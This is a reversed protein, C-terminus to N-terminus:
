RLDLDSKITSYPTAYSNSGFRDAAHIMGYVKVNSGITTLPAGSDGGKLKVDIVMGYKSSWKEYTGYKTGSSVGSVQLWTGESPLSTSFSSISDAVGSRKFIKKVTTQTAKVFACDCKGWAESTIKDVTGVDRTPYQDIIKGKANAGHATMVFGVDGDKQKAFFSLTSTEGGEDVALGGMLYRCDTTRDSCKIFHSNKQITGVTFPMGDIVGGNVSLDQSPIDAKQPSASFTEERILSNEFIIHVSKKIPSVFFGDPVEGLFHESNPDSLKNFVSLGQAELKEMEKKTPIVDDIYKQQLRDMKQQIKNIREELKEIKNAKSEKHELNDIKAQLATQKEALKLFKLFKRDTPEADATPMASFPLIMAVILSAFLITKINKAIM